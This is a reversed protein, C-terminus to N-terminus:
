AKWTYVVSKVHLKWLDGQQCKEGRSRTFVQEMCTDAAM